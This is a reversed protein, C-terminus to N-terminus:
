SSIVYRMLLSGSSTELGLNVSLFLVFLTIRFRVVTSLCAREDVGGTSGAQDTELVLGKNGEKAIFPFSLACCSERHVICERLLSRFVDFCQHFGVSPVWLVVFCDNLSSRLFFRPWLVDSWFAKFM